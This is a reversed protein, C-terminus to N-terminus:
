KNEIAIKKTYNVIEVNNNSLVIKIDDIDISKNEKKPEFISINLKYNLADVDCSKVGEMNKLANEIGEEQSQYKLKHLDISYSITRNGHSEQGFCLSTFFLCSVIILFKM